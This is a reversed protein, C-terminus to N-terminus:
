VMPFWRRYILKFVELFMFEKYDALYYMSWIKICSIFGISFFYLEYVLHFRLLFFHFISAMEKSFRSSEVIGYKSSVFYTNNLIVLIFSYVYVGNFVRLEKQMGFPEYFIRNFNRPISFSSMFNGIKTKKLYDNSPDNM